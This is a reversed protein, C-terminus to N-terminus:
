NEAKMTLSFSTSCYINTSTYFHEYKCTFLQLITDKLCMYINGKCVGSKELGIQFLVLIACACHVEKTAM